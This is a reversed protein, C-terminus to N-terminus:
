LHLSKKELHQLLFYLGTRVYELYYSIIVYNKHESGMVVFAIFVTAQLKDFHDSQVKHQSLLAVNQAFDIQVVVVDNPSSM